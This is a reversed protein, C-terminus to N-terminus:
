GGLLSGGGGLALRSPDVGGPGTLLTSAPGSRAARQQGSLLGQLEPQRRNLRRREAGSRRLEAAAASEATREARAQRKIARRETKKQKQGQLVSGGILAAGLAVFGM